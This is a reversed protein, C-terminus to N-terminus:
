FYFPSSLSISSGQVQRPLTYTRLQHPIAPLYNLFGFPCKSICIYLRQLLVLHGPSFFPHQLRHQLYRPCSFRFATDRVTLAWTSQDKHPNHNSCPRLDATKHQDQRKPFPARRHASIAVAVIKTPDLEDVVRSDRRSAHPRAVSGISRSFNRDLSLAVRGEQRPAPLSVACDACNVDDLHPFSPHLLLLSKRIRGSCFRVAKGISPGSNVPYMLGYERTRINAVAADAAGAPLRHHTM